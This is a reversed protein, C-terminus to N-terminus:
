FPYDDKVEEIHGGPEPYGQDQEDLVCSFFKEGRKSTKLWCAGIKKFGEGLINYDPHKDSTKKTNKFITFKM